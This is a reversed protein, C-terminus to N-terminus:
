SNIKEHVDEEIPRARYVLFSLIVAVISIIFIIFYVLEVGAVMAQNISEPATPNAVGELYSAQKSNLISIFVSVGIAGSLPQLASMVATGHPYLRKPLQNLGNTEAPMMTASVSLMILIFGVIIVWPPTEATLRSFMFMTGALVITAPIMMMRPGVKDFLAGMFPSAIGNLISGPLLLLGAAAPALAMPGQMFVPLILESAFMTMVIIVFMAVAHSFMPLKFVRLDMLPEEVKFQRIAFLVISTVGVILSILVDPTLFGAESEGVSSFGYITAGFGITSFIISFWDIKPKTVESVNILYKYGFLISFLAFPIVTIFLFRWGLYDVIVGSLTPGIAPAFMIVLGVIGMIKGRKHPPYILLFVNFILPMLLGTGIAQILRGTLLISFTPAVAAIATGFTFVIMTGIFLQRTTFWQMLLPSIPIVIGMILMFGTAVWQVTPLTIGFEAMLTTLAINLLTENLIAFFAGIILAMMIPLTKVNPDDSLFEYKSKTM